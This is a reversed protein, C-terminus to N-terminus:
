DDAADSTYLLCDKVWAQMIEIEYTSADIQRNNQIVENSIGACGALVLGALAACAISAVRM